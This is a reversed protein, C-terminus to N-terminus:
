QQIYNLKTSIYKILYNIGWFVVMLYLPFLTTEVIYTCIYTMLSILICNIFNFWFQLKFFNDNLIVFKNYNLTYIVKHKFYYILNYIFFFLPFCVGLFLFPVM